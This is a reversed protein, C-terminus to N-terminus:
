IQANVMNTPWATDRLCSLQFVFCRRSFPEGMEFQAMADQDAETM